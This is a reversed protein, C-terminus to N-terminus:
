STGRVTRTQQAVRAVRKVESCPGYIPRRRYPLAERQARNSSCVSRATGMAGTGFTLDGRAWPYGPKSALGPPALPRRVLAMYRDADIRRHRDSRVHQRAFGDQ